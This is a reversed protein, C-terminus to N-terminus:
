LFAEYVPTGEWLLPRSLALIHAITASTDVMNVPSQILHGKKILPGNIIWPITMDEPMDTGHDTDHGGHDAQVLIHYRQRLHTQDLYELVMGLARDNAEIAAIYEPSMWGHLHGTIDIDGFYLFCFDPQREILHAAAVRAVLTDNDSGYVANMCYSLDLSGPAALDRLQEWSYFMATRKNGLKAVDTISPFAAASPRFVNDAQIGHKDPTIGRFMSSHAPLTVSPMVSRANWTYAGTQWLSDINPTHAQKLADPRCGDLVILLLKPPM